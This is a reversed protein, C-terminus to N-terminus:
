IYKFWRKGHSNDNFNNLQDPSLSVAGELSMIDDGTLHNDQRGEDTDDNENELGYVMEIELAVRFVLLLQPENFMIELMHKSCVIPHGGVLDQM